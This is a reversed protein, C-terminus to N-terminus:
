LVIEAGVFYMRLVSASSECGSNENAPGRCLLYSAETDYPATSKIEKDPKSTAQARGDFEGCQLARQVPKRSLDLSQRKITDPRWKAEMM